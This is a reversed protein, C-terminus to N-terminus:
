AAAKAAVLDVLDKFRTLGEIEANSFKFGYRREVAVVLRVHSLSDWEEVDNATTDDTLEVDGDLDLVDEFIETLESSITTTDTM